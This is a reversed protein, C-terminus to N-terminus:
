PTAPKDKLRREREEGNRKLREWREKQKAEMENLKTQQAPTLLPAVEGHMRALAAASTRMTTRRLERLEDATRDVIPRIKEQQDATLELKDILRQMLERGMQDGGPGRHSRNVGWRLTVLSGVLIGALFIGTFALVVKWPKDM